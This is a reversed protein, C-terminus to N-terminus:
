KKRGKLVRSVSDVVASDIIRNSELNGKRKKEAWDIRVKRNIDKLIRLETSPYRDKISDLLKQSYIFIKAIDRHDPILSASALSIGKLDKKQFSRTLVGRKAAASRSDRVIEKISYSRRGGM